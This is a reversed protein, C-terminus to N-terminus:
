SALERINEISSRKIKDNIEGGPVKVIECEKKRLDEISKEKKQCNLRDAMSDFQDSNLNVDNEIYQGKKTAKCIKLYQQRIAEKDKEYQKAIDELEKTSSDQLDKLKQKAIVVKQQLDTVEDDSINDISFDKKEIEEIIGDLYDEEVKLDISQSANLNQFMISFLFVLIKKM